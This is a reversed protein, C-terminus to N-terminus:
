AMSAPAPETAQTDAKPRVELTVEVDQGLRELVAMLRDATFRDLKVQRIRSFDAAAVGTAEHAQRVTLRQEDLVRIIQGALSAKFNRLDANDLGLDRFVNGSGRILDTDESM